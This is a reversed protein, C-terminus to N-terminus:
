GGVPSEPEPELVGRIDIDRNSGMFNRHESLTMNDPMAPQLNSLQPSEQFVNTQGFNDMPPQDNFSMPNEHNNAQSTTDYTSPIGRIMDLLEQVNSAELNVGVPNQQPPQDHVININKINETHDFGVKELVGGIDSDRKPRRKVSEKMQETISTIGQYMQQGIAINTALVAQLEMNARMNEQETLHLETIHNSIVLADEKGLSNIKLQELQTELSIERDKQEKLAAESKEKSAKLSDFDLQLNDIQEKYRKRDNSLETAHSERIKKLAGEYKM